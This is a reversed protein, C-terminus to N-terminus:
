KKLLQKCIKNLDKVKDTPAQGPPYAACVQRVLGSEGEEAPKQMSLRRDAKGPRPMSPNSNTTVPIETKQDLNMLQTPRGRPLLAERLAMRNTERLLKGLYAEANDPDDLSETLRVKGADTYRVRPYEFAASGSPWHLHLIFEAQMHNQPPQLTFTVALGKGPVFAMAPLDM